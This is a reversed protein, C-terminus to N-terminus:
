GVARLRMSVFWWYAMRFKILKLGFKVLQFFLPVPQEITQRAQLRLKLVRAFPRLFLFSVELIKRESRNHLLKQRDDVIEFQCQFGGTRGLLQTRTDRKNHLLHLLNETAQLHLRDCGHPFLEIWAMMLRHSRYLAVVQGILVHRLLNAASIPQALLQQPWSQHSDYGIGFLRVLSIILAM